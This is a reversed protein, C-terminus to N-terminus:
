RMNYRSGTTEDCVVIEAADGVTVGYPNYTPTNCSGMVIAWNHNITQCFMIKCEFKM